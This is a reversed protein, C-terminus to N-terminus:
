ATPASQSTVSTGKKIKHGNGPQAEGKGGNAEKTLAKQIGGPNRMQDINYIFDNDVDLFENQSIRVKLSAPVPAAQFGWNLVEMWTMM